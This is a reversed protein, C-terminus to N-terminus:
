HKPIHNNDQCIVVRVESRVSRWVWHFYVHLLEHFLVLSGSLYFFIFYLVKLYNFEIFIWQKIISMIHSFPISYANFQASGQQCHARKNRALVTAVNFQDSTLAWGNIKTLWIQDTATLLLCAGWLFLSSPSDALPGSPRGREYSCATMEKETRQM